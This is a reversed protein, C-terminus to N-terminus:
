FPQWVEIQIQWPEVEYYAYGGLALCRSDFPEPYVFRFLEVQPRSRLGTMEAFTRPETTTSQCILARAYTPSVLHHIAFWEGSVPSTYQWEDNLLYTGIPAWSM